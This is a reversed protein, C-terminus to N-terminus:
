AIKYRLILGVGCFVILQVEMIMWYKGKMWIFLIIIETSNHRHIDRLSKSLIIFIDSPLQIGKLVEQYFFHIFSYLKAM